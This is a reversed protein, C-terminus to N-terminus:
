YLGKSPRTSSPVPPRAPVGATDSLAARVPRLLLLTLPLVPVAVLLPIVQCAVVAYDIPLGLAATVSAGTSLVVAALWLPDVAGIARVCHREARVRRNWRQAREADGRVTLRMMLTAVARRRLVLGAAIAVAMLGGIATEVLLIVRPSGSIAAATISCALLALTFVELPDIARRVLSRTLIRAAVLTTGAVLALLQGVGALYRLAFYVGLQLGVDVLLSVPPAPPSETDALPVTM